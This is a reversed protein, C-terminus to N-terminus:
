TIFAMDPIKVVKVKHPQESYEEFTPSQFAGSGLRCLSDAGFVRKLTGRKPTVARLAERMVGQPYTVKRWVGKLV